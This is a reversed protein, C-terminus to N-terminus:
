SLITHAATKRAPSRPCAVASERTKERSTASAATSIPSSVAWPMRRMPLLFAATNLWSKFEAMETGQSTSPIAM